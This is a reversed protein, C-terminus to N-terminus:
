FHELVSQDMINLSNVRVKQWIIVGNEKMYIVMMISFDAQAMHKIMWGIEKTVRGMMGSIFEQARECITKGSDM